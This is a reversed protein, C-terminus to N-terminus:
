HGSVLFPDNFNLVSDRSARVALHPSFNQFRSRPTDPRSITSMKKTQPPSSTQSRAISASRKRRMEEVVDSDSAQVQLQEVLGPDVGTVQWIVERELQGDHLFGLGLTPEERTRLIEHLAVWYRRTEIIGSHTSAAEPVAKALMEYVPLAVKDFFELQLKPVLARERDMMEIPPQGMQKELDGQSFFETFVSEAMHKSSHFPKSQDSLDCASMLLSLLLRHHKENNKNYGVRLMERIKDTKKFLMAIDTSLIIDHIASLVTNFQEIPLNDLINCEDRYLLSATQTYHYHELVSGERSYLKALPTQLKLQFHNNTGPHGIDHGLCAIFFALQELGGLANKVTDTRLLLYAFHTVSFAHSWNHYPLDQYGSSIQLLFHALRDRRIRYKRIFGLEEFMSQTARVYMESSGIIRPTFSFENFQPHYRGTSRIPAMTLERYLAEAWSPLLEDEAEQAQAGRDMILAREGFILLNLILMNSSM